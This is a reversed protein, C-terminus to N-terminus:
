IPNSASIAGGNAATNNIFISDKIKIDVLGELYFVSGDEFSINNEFTLNLM